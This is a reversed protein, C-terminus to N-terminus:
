PRSARILIEKQKAIGKRGNSQSKSDVRWCGNGIVGCIMLVRSYPPFSCTPGFVVCTLILLCPVFFFSTM